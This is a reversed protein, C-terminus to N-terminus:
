SVISSIGNKKMCLQVLDSHFFIRKTLKCEHSEGKTLAGVWSVSEVEGVEKCIHGNRDAIGDVAAGNARYVIELAKFALDVDESFVLM